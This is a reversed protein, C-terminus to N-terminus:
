KGSGTSGAILMHPMKAIDTVVTQGGIDKGVAFVLKSSFDKYAKQVNEIQLLM